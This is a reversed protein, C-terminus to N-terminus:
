DESLDDFIEKKILVCKSQMWVESNSKPMTSYTVKKVHLKEPNLYYELIDKVKISDNIKNSSMFLTFEELKMIFSFKKNINQMVCALYLYSRKNIDDFSNKSILERLSLDMFKQLKSESNVNNPLLMGEFNFKFSNIGMNSLTKINQPTIWFDGKNCWIIESNDEPIIIYENGYISATSLRTSAMLCETRRPYGSWSGLNNLITNYTINKAYKRVKNGDYFYFDKDLKSDGRFLIPGKEMTYKWNHKFNDNLHNYLSDKKIKELYKETLFNWLRM